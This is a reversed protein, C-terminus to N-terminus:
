VNPGCCGLVSSRPRSHWNHYDLRRTMREEFTCHRFWPLHPALGRVAGMGADEIFQRLPVGSEEFWKWAGQAVNSVKAKCGAERSGSRIRLAVNHPRKLQQSWDNIHETEQLGDVPRRMM